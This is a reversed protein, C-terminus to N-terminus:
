RIKLPSFFPYINHRTKITLKAAVATNPKEAVIQADDSLVKRNKYKPKIMQPM